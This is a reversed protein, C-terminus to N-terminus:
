PIVRTRYFRNTAPANNTYRLTGSAPFINTAIPALATLADGAEVVARLGQRGGRVEFQANTPTTTISALSINVVSITGTQQPRGTTVHRQCVYPYYGTNTFTFAFTSNLNLTSSGFLGARTVDHANVVTNTWVVRDLPNIVINTPNFWFDGIRVGVDAGNATLVSLAILVILYRCCKMFQFQCHSGCTAKRYRMPHVIQANTGAM